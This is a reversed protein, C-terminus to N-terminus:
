QKFRLNTLGFASISVNINNINTTSITETASVYIRYLRNWQNPITNEKLVNYKTTEAITNKIKRFFIQM